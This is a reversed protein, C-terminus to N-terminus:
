GDIRLSSFRFRAPPRPGFKNRARQGPIVFLLAVLVLGALNLLWVDSLRGAAMFGVFLIFLPIGPLGCDHTRKIALIGFYCLYVLLPVLFIYYIPKFVASIRSGNIVIDILAVPIIFIAVVLGLIALGLGSGIVFTTRNIRGELLPLM